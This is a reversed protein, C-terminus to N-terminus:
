KTVTITANGTIGSNEGRFTYTYTGTQPVSMSGTSFGGARNTFATGVQTSGQMVSVHEECGFNHGGFDIGTGARVSTGNQDITGSGSAPASCSSSSTSTATSGSNGNTNGSNGSLLSFLFAIQQQLSMIISQLQVIQTQLTSIDTTTSTTGVGSTTTTSTTSTANTRSSTVPLVFFTNTAMRGSTAGTASINISGTPVSPITVIKSFSGTVDSVATSSSGNFNLNVSESPMFNTGMATISIGPMGSYASLSLFATTSSSTSTATSSTSTATSSTSTATSTTSTANTSTTSATMFTQDASMTTSGLSDTSSIQFHYTTSPSLSTLTATHSTTSATDLTSSATYPTSTGYLVQGNSATDTNWNITAATSSATVSIGSILPAAAHAPSYSFAAFALAALVTSFLLALRLPIGQRLTNTM